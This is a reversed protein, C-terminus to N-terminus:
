KQLKAREIQEELEEIFALKQQKTWALKHAMFQTLDDKQQIVSDIDFYLMGTRRILFDTPKIVAEYEISYILEALIIPNLTTKRHQITQYIQYLIHANSGYKKAFRKAVQENIGLQKAENIKKEIFKTFNAKGGVDGGSIPLTKTQFCQYLIGEERRLQEVVLDVVEEAMKRYGTLKGGAISILGSTSIFIEDKRSIESPTKGIEHILPRIGAWSSEIDTKNLKLTPFKENVAKLIYDRDGATVQPKTLDGNYITDTTGVYVKNGRPIAFIMRHDHTDFYIAQNLPFRAKDFVFHVGKTHHLTKIQKSGDIDRLEDVWPGTANIIKKAFISFVAQTLQDEVVVGVIKNKYYIFDIVKMYNSAIASLQVAKKIVEITLRADDTKYEIYFGAGLLNERKLFPVKEITSSANLMRHREDKKVKALRDYLTLGLKASFPGLTGGKYIPLLMWEPKTVHPGNEFVISRESGVESVLRFEFQKLYRLGGHILKTSRSSTGAAFDQMEVLASRLGRHTADLLIGAGTIGGGIVLLDLKTSILRSKIKDRKYAHFPVMLM